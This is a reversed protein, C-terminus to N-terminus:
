ASGGNRLKVESTLTIVTSDTKYFEPSAGLTITVVSPNSVDPDYTFVSTSALRDLLTTTQGGATRTLTTGSATYSIRTEIGNIYTDIDLFTASSGARVDIAQRVEKTMREMAIRVADSEESRASERVSARQVVTFATLIATLVILMLGTVVVLEVLTFGEERASIRRYLSRM